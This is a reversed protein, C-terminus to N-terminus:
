VQYVAPASGGSTGQWGTALKTMSALANGIDTVAQSAPMGPRVLMYIVALLASGTIFLGIDNKM